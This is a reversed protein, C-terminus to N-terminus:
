TQSRLQRMVSIEEKLYRRGRFRWWQDVCRRYLDVLDFGSRLREVSFGRLDEGDDTRGRRLDSLKRSISYATRYTGDADILFTEGPWLSLPSFIVPVGELDFHVEGPAFRIDRELVRILKKSGVVDALKLLEQHRYLRLFIRTQGDPGRGFRRLSERLQQWFEHLDFRELAALEVRAPSLTTIHLQDILEGEFLLKTAELVAAHNLETLTFLSTVRGGLKVVKRAHRLGEIAVQYAGINARQANHAQEPGDISIDIWDLRFPEREMKELVQLYTGNDLLGIKLSPRRRSAEAMVDVHWPRVIRGEHLLRPADGALQEIARLVLEPLNAEDSLRRSSAEPPYICHRCQLNCAREFTVSCMQPVELKLASLMDRELDSDCDETSSIVREYWYDTSFPQRM